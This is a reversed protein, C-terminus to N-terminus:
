LAAARLRDGGTFGALNDMAEALRLSRNQRELPNRYSKLTHTGAANLGWVTGEARQRYDFSPKEFERVMDLIKSGSIVGTNALDVVIARASMYDILDDQYAANRERNVLAAGELKDLGQMVLMPLDRLINTTHKRGVVTEAFIQGNACIMVEEGAAIQAAFRKDNANRWGIQFTIGDRQNLDFMGFARLDQHTLQVDREIFDLGRAALADAITDRLVFHPIPRHTATSPPTVVHSLHESTVTRFTYAM